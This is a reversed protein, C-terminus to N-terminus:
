IPPPSDGGELGLDEKTLGSKRMVEKRLKAMEAYTDQIRRRQERAQKLLNNFQQRTREENIILHGNKIQIQKQHTLAFDYLAVTEDCWQQEIQDAKRRVELASSYDNSEIVGQLFLQKGADSLSSQAVEQQVRASLTEAQTDDVTSDCEQLM